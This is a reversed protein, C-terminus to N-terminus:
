GTRGEVLETEVVAHRAVYIFKLSTKASKCREQWGLRAALKNTMEVSFLIEGNVFTPKNLPHPPSVYLRCITGYMDKLLQEQSGTDKVKLIVNVNETERNRIHNIHATKTVTHLEHRLQIGTVNKSGHFAL